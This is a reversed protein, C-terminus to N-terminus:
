RRQDILHYDLETSSAPASQAILGRYLTEYGDVTKEISFQAAREIGADRLRARLELNTLLEGLHQALERDNGAEFLLGAGEVLEALGPVRSAVVPLGAAMAELAAIGFGEFRSSQVFIDASKMLQAVDTRRGLFHVRNSVQLDQAMKKYTAVDPGAGVLFLHADPITRIARIVTGHDKEPMMRGVSLVVPAEHVDPFQRLIESPRAYAFAEM